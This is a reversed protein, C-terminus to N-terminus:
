RTSLSRERNRGGRARGAQGAALLAANIPTPVGHLRGLLVIEGNLYDAEISVGRAMSQWMSAGPRSQSAAGGWPLVTGRRAADDEESVLEIGAAALVAMAEDRIEANLAGSRNAPGCLADLANSLNNVLKRYKWRM